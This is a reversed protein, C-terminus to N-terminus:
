RLNFVVHANLASITPRDREDRWDGLQEAQVHTKGLHVQAGVPVAAVTLRQDHIALEVPAAVQPVGVVRPLHKQIAAVRVGAAQM